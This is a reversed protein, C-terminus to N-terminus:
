LGTLTTQKPKKSKIFNTNSTTGADLATPSVVGFESRKREAEAQAKQHEKFGEFERRSVVEHEGAGFTTLIQESKRQAAELTTTVDKETLRRTEAQIDAATGRGLKAGAKATLATQKKGLLKGERRIEIAELEAEELIAKSELKASRADFAQGAAQERKARRQASRSQAVGVGFSAAALALGLTVAM